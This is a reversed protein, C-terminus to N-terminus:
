PTVTTGAITTTEWGYRTETDQEGDYQSWSRNWTTTTTTLCELYAQNGSYQAGQSTSCEYGAPQNSCTIETNYDNGPYSPSCRDSYPNVDIRGCRTVIAARPDDLQVWAFRRVTTTTSRLEGRQRNGDNDYVPSGEADRLYDFSKNTETWQQDCQIVVGPPITGSGDAGGDGQAGADPVGSDMMEGVMDAGTACAIAAVALGIVLGIRKM